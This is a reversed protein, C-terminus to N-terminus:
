LVKNRTIAAAPMECFNHHLTISVWMVIQPNADAGEMWGFPM